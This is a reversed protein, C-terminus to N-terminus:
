QLGISTYYNTVVLVCSLQMRKHILGILSLSCIVQNVFYFLCEVLLSIVSFPTAHSFQFLVSFVHLVSSVQM